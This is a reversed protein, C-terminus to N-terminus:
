IKNFFQKEVENFFAAVQAAFDAPSIESAEQKECKGCYHTYIINRSFDVVIICDKRVTSCLYATNAERHYTTTYNM